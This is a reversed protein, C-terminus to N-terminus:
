RLWIEENQKKLVFSQFQVPTNLKQSTSSLWKKMIKLYQQGDYGRYCQHAALKMAQTHETLRPFPETIMPPICGVPNDDRVVFLWLFCLRVTAKVEPFVVGAVFDRQPFSFSFWSKNQLNAYLQLPCFIWFKNQQIAM